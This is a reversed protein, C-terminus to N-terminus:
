ELALIGIFFFATIMWALLTVGFYGRQRNRLFRRVSLLLLAGFAIAVLEFSFFSLWNPVQTTYTLLLADYIVFLPMLLLFVSAFLRNSTNLL